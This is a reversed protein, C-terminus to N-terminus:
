DRVAEIEKTFPDIEQVQDIEHWGPLITRAYHGRQHNGDAHVHGHQLEIAELVHLFQRGEDNIFVEVKPSEIVFHANGTHEGLVLLYKGKTAETKILNGAPKRFLKIVLCDGQQVLQRINNAPM